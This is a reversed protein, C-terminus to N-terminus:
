EAGGTKFPYHQFDLVRRKIKYLEYILTMEDNRVCGVGNKYKKLDNALQIVLPSKWGGKTTAIFTGCNMGPANLTEFPVYEVLIEYDDLGFLERWKNLTANMQEQSEFVNIM